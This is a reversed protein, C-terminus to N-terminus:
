SSSKRRWCRRRRSSTGWGSGGHRRRSERLGPSQRRVLPSAVHHAPATRGCPPGAWRAGDTNVVVPWYTADGGDYNTVEVTCAVGRIGVERLPHFTVVNPTESVMVIDDWTIDVYGTPDCTFGALLGCGWVVYEYYDTGDPNYPADVEEDIWSTFGSCPETSTGGSDTGTTGSDTITSTDTGSDTGPTTGSDTTSTSTDTPSDSDSPLGSDTPPKTADAPIPPSCAISLLLALVFGGLDAWIARTRAQSRVQPITDLSRRGM